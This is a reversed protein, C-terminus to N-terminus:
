IDFVTFVQYQGSGHRLKHNIRCIVYTQPDLRFQGPVSAKQITWVTAANGNSGYGAMLPLSAASVLSNSYVQRRERSVNRPSSAAQVTRYDRKGGSEVAYYVPQAYPSAPQLATASVPHNGYYTTPPKVYQSNLVANQQAYYGSPSVPATYPRSSSSPM